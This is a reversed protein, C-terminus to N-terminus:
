ICICVTVCVCMYIYTYYIYIYISQYQILIFSFRHFYYLQSGGFALIWCAFFLSGKTPGSLHMAWWCCSLSLTFQAGRRGLKPDRVGERIRRERAYAGRFFFIVMHGRAPTWYPSWIHQHYKLLVNSQCGVMGCKQCFHHLIICIFDCCNQKSSMPIQHVM